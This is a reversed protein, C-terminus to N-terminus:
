DNGNGAALNVGIISGDTDKKFSAGDAKLAAVDTPSDPKRAPEAATETEAPKTAPPAKETATSKSEQPAAPPAAQDHCGAALVAAMLVATVNRLPSASFSGASKSGLRRM